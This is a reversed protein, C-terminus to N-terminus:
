RATARGEGGATGPTVAARETCELCVFRHQLRSLDIRLGIVALAAALGFAGLFLGHGSLGTALAALGAALSLGALVRGMARAGARRAGLIGAAALCGGVLAISEGVIPDALPLWSAVGVGLFVGAAGGGVMGTCGACAVRDGIRVVHNSFAGCDLHHGRFGLATCGQPVPPTSPASAPGRSRGLIRNCGSPRFAAAIGLLSVLVLASGLISRDLPTSIPAAASSPLGSLLTSVVILVLALAWRLRRASAADAPTATSM